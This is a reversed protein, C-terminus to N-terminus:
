EGHFTVNVEDRFFEAEVTKGLIDTMKEGLMRAVIDAGSAAPMPAIMRIPKVPYSQAMAGACYLALAGAISLKHTVVTVGSSNWRSERGKGM